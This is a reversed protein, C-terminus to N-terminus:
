DNSVKVCRVPAARYATSSYNIPTCSMGIHGSKPDSDASGCWHTHWNDYPASTSRITSTHYFCYGNYYTGTQLSISNLATGSAAVARSFVSTSPFFISAMNYHNVMLVGFTARNYGTGIEETGDVTSVQDFYGDAYRGWVFNDTSAEDQNAASNYPRDRYVSQILEPDTPHKYGPPCVELAHNWTASFGATPLAVTTNAMPIYSTTKNVQFYSGVKTPYDTFRGKNVAGIDHNTVTGGGTYYQEAVVNYPSVKKAGARGTVPGSTRSDEPRYLYDAEEGQRVFFMAIGGSRVITILGYRPAAGPALTSKMGVRFKINGTGKVVGGFTDEVVRGDAGKDKGDIKIWDLGTIIRVTWNGTNTGSIFRETTENNKHFSGVYGNYWVSSVGPTQYIDIPVDELYAGLNTSVTVTGCYREANGVYNNYADRIAGATGPAPGTTEPLTKLKFSGVLVYDSGSSGSAPLGDVPTCYNLTSSTLTVTWNLGIQTEVNEPLLLPVDTIYGNKSSVYIRDSAWRLKFGTYTLGEQYCGMDTWVESNITVTRPNGNIDRKSEAPMGSTNDNFAAINGRGIMPARNGAASYYPRTADTTQNFNPGPINGDTGTTFWAGNIDRVPVNGTGSPIPRDSYNGQIACNQVTFSGTFSHGGGTKSGWWLVSNLLSAGGTCTLMGANDAITANILKASAGNLSVGQNCGSVLINTATGATIGLVNGSNININQIEVANLWATGNSLTVAGTNSPSSGTINFGDLVSGARDLSVSNAGLSLCAKYKDLKRDASTYPATNFDAALLETGSKGEWGGFIRINDAPLATIGETYVKDSGGAVLIGYVAHGAARLAVVKNIASNITPLADRWSQGNGTSGAKVYLWGTYKEGVTENITVKNWPLVQTGIEIGDDVTISVRLIRNCEAVVPIEAEKSFTTGNIRDLDVSIKMKLSTVDADNVGKHAPIIFRVTDSKLHGTETPHDIMKLKAQLPSALLAPNDKSPLLAGTYSITSPVDHLKILHKDSTKSFTATAKSIVLEVMAVNRAIDMSATNVPPSAVISLPINSLFIEAADDSKGTLVSVTPEYKYMPSVDMALTPNPAIITTGAPASLAGYYWDGVEVTASLTNSQRTIGYIEKRFKRDSATGRYFSFLRMNQIVEADTFASAADFTMVFNHGKSEDIKPDTQTCSVFYLTALVPVLATLRLIKKM